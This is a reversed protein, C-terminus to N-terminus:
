GYSGPGPRTSRISSGNATRRTGLDTEYFTMQEVESGDPRMRHLDSGSRDLGEPDFAVVIWEGDPSWVPEAAGVSWDTLQTEDRGAIDMVFVATNRGFGNEDYRYYAIMTGDPSLRPAYERDCGPNSTLETVQHTDPDGLWLGCESPVDDVFPGFARIFVILSGDASYSPDDDGVCPDVCAFLESSTETALDYSYLPETVGGRTTFIVKTGDPSWDPRGYAGVDEGIKQRGTGDPHMLFVFATGDPRPGQYAIWDNVDVLQAIDVGATSLTSPSSTPITVVPAVPAVERTQSFLLGIAGILLILVAAAMWSRPQNPRPTQNTRRTDLQTMESSRQVLKTLQPTVAAGGTEYSELDPVPNVEDLLALAQAESIM